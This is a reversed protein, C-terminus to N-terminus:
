LTGVQCFSFSYFYFVCIPTLTKSAPLPLTMRGQKKKSGSNCRSNIEQLAKDIDATKERNEENEYNLWLFGDSSFPYITFAFRDVIKDQLCLFPSSHPDSAQFHFIVTQNWAARKM